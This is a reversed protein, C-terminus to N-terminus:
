FEFAAAEARAEEKGRKRYSFYKVKHGRKQIKFRKNKVDDAVKPMKQVAPQKVIFRVREDWDIRAGNQKHQTNKSKAYPVREIYQKEIALVESLSVCKLRCVLGIKTDVREYWETTAMSTPEDLHERHRKELTGKTYGVYQNGANDSIRYILAEIALEVPILTIEWPEHEATKIVFLHEKLLETCEFSIHDLTRFRSLATYIDRFFMREIDFLNHPEELTRGQNRFVSDCFGYRCHDDFQERSLEIYKDTKSSKLTILDDEDSVLAYRHGNSITPSKLNKFAVIPMGVDTKRKSRELENQITRTKTGSLCMSRSVDSRLLKTFLSPHLKRESKLYLLVNYLDENYRCTAPNYPLEHHNHDVLAQFLPCSMYDVWQKEIPLCQWPDGFMRIILQPYQQKIQFLLFYFRKPVMFPEDIFIYRLKGAKEIVSQLRRYTPKKTTECECKTKTGKKWPLNCRQCVQPQFFYADFTQVNTKDDCKSKINECATKTYCLVISEEVQKVEQLMQFTKGTGPMGSVLMSKDLSDNTADNWQTREAETTTFADAIEQM